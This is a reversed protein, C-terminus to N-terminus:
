LLGFKYITTFDYKQDAPLFCNSATSHNMSDPEFQTELCYAEHMGYHEGGMGPDKSKLGNATYLQMAPMNTYVELTRGHVPATIRAALRIGEGYGRINYNHDFGKKLGFDSYKEEKGLLDGFRVPKRLDLPTNLVSKQEGTPIGDEDTASYTDAFVSIKQNYIKGSREGEMNFYAHNTINCFTDADSVAEYHIRLENDDNFTYTVLVSLTGPYGEEGHPSVYKLFVHDECIGELTSVEWIKRNFGLHGGHIHHKGGYNRALYLREGDIICEGNRIRNAVRGIVAGMYGCNPEYSNVDPYGLLVNSVVGIKDPVYIARLTAGYDAIEVSAGNRNTIRYVYTRRKDPLQGFLTREISM